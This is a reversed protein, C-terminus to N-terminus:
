ALFVYQGRWNPIQSLAVVHEFGSDFTPPVAEVKRVGIYTSRLSLEKHYLDALGFQFSTSVHCNSM